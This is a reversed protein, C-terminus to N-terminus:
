NMTISKRVIRSASIAQCCGLSKPCRAVHPEGESEFQFQEIKRWDQSGGTLQRVELVGAVPSVQEATSRRM